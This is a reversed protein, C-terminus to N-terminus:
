DDSVISAARVDTPWRHLVAASAAYALFGLIIMWLAQGSWRDLVFFMLGALVLSALFLTLGFPHLLAKQM